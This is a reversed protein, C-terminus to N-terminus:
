LQKTPVSTSGNPFSHARIGVACPLAATELLHEPWYRTRGSKCALRLAQATHSLHRPCNQSLLYSPHEPGCADLNRWSGGSRAAIACTSNRYVWGRIDTHMAQAM